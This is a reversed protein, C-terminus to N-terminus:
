KSGNSILPVPKLFDFHAHNVKDTFTDIITEFSKLSNRDANNNTDDTALRELQSTVEKKKQICEDSIKKIDKFLKAIKKEYEQIIKARKKVDISKQFKQTRIAEPVLNRIGDTKMHVIYPNMATDKKLVYADIDVDRSINAHSM